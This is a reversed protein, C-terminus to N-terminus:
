RCGPSRCTSPSSTPWRRRSTTSSAGAWGCPRCSPRSITTWCCWRPPRARWTRAGRRGHRHRHAAAKLAPADNVGDGTMAVIEGNAKLADRAAAEAGAGRPRLHEVDQHAAALEADSMSTSSPGPSSRGDPASASRAPSTAAGHGPLRRHDHRRPHRRRLVGARGGARRGCRTPSASWASSSSRFDHQDAPCRRSAPLRGQWASCACGTPPWPRRRQADLERRRARRRSPVPRRDGRARGQRRHRLREGDPSRWVHSLALLERSLPYEQVLTWDDHLHETQSSTATASTSSRRRWRTSRTASAPWSASSSWSTSRRPCRSAPTSACTTRSQRRRVLQSVSM